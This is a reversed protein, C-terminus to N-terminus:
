TGNGEEMLHPHEFANGAVLMGIAREQNMPWSDGDSAFIRFGGDSFRIERHEKAKAIYVIDREYIENGEPDRLGTFQRTAVLEMQDHIDSLQALSQGILDLLYYKKHHFGNVGRYVFDFKIERM